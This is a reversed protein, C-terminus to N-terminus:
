LPTARTFVCCTWTARNDIQETTIIRDMLQYGAANFINMMHHENLFRCPYAAPYIDPPVQQIFVADKDFENYFCTRDLIVCQSRLDLLQTLITIPDDLYQLVSSLLVVDPSVEVVCQEITHHFRLDGNQFYKQGVSVYHSQEVVNWTIKNLQKLVKRNQFYHSGLSGGFDLVNLEGKRIAAVMMLVGLVPWSYELHKFGVSDREFALIGEKVFLTTHFVKELIQQEAYGSGAKEVAESWSAQPGNFTTNVSFGQGLLRIVFRLFIPPIWQKGIRRLHTLKRSTLLRNRLSARNRKERIYFDVYAATGAASPEVAIDALVIESTSLLTDHSSTASCHTGTGDNGINNVLSRSPYLTLKNELFVSAHWRIAWSNNKGQVQSLLMRTNAVSNNIDFLKSLRKKKLQDYLYQGDPNFLQWGRRWTGWGWCDAGRMFFTEPMRASFPPLYAHVSAVREDYEYKTLASNMYSLFHPSTVLDDELVVVRDNAELVESVGAIISKALGYNKSREHITVTRFGSITKLYARVIAVRGQNELSAAADSYVILDTDAAQKNAVLSAITARVHDPRDYVFLVVPSYM